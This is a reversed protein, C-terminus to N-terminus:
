MSDGEKKELLPPYPHNSKIKVIKVVGWGRRLLLLPAL